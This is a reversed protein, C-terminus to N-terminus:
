KWYHLNLFFNKMSAKPDTPKGHAILHLQASHWMTSWGFGIATVKPMFSPPPPPTWTEGKADEDSINNDLLKRPLAPEISAPRGIGVADAVGSEVANRIGVRSHFGGTVLIRMQSSPPLIGHARQAFGVFFGERQKTRESANGAMAPSEYSGGSVEVFDVMNTEALWKVNQLADDETQGGHIYDSSNLKIGVVFKPSVKERIGEIIERIIRFRREADGGYEDDRLNTKPSLFSSLLYGHAAHLEIGDFGAKEMFVAARIFRQIVDQVEDFTLAHPTGFMIADIMGPKDRSVQVPVASPAVSQKWPFRFSGRMSQRGCHVLQVVALPRRGDPPSSDARADGVDFGKTARAYKIFETLYEADVKENGADPVVMDFFMGIYRRDVAVNGTIILGWGGDAWAKYLRYVDDNPKGGGFTSLMEEMPAKTFRNPIVAGCPLTLESALINIDSNMISTQALVCLCDFRM